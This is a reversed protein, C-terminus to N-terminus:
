GDAVRAIDLFFERRQADAQAKHAVFRDAYVEIARDSMGMKRWEGILWSLDEDPPPHAVGPHLPTVTALTEQLPTPAKGNLVAAVSGEDWDCFEEIRARNYDEPERDDKEWARWTTRSVSARRAAEYQSIGLQTRRRELHGGLTLRLRGKAMHVLRTSDTLGVVM